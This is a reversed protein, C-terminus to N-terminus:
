PQRQGCLAAIYAATEGALWAAEGSIAVPSTWLYRGALGAAAANRFGRWCLGLWRLPIILSIISHRLIQPAKWDEHAIRLEGFEKGRVYREHLIDAWSSTHHHVAVLQPQFWLPIGAAGFAWSLLTDALMHDSEFGGVEEFAQRQCLLGATPGIEIQRAPGGPLWMDFKCFHAGNDLWGKGHCVLASVTVGGQLQQAAVMGAVWTPPVYIDPDMFLLLPGSTRAVGLNRAAHPLLRAPSYFYRVQPFTQAIVRHKQPSPDSDVVIVEFASYTQVLLCRLCEALTNQSQYAPIIVSVM